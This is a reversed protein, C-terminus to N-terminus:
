YAIRVEERDLILSRAVDGSMPQSAIQKQKSAIEATLRNRKAQLDGVDETVVRIYLIFDFAFLSEALKVDRECQEVSRQGAEKRDELQAIDSSLEDYKLQLEIEDHQLFILLACNLFSDDSVSRAMLTNLEATAKQEDLKLQEYEGDIDGEGGV